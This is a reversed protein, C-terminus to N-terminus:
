TGAPPLAPTQNVPAPAPSPAPAPPNPAPAPKPAPAPTPTKKKFLSTVKSWLGSFFKSISAPFGASGVDTEIAARNRWVEYILAGAALAALATALWPVFWLSVRAVLASAEIGGAVAAIPISINHAEPLAFFLGIGIGVSVISLVIVVDLGRAVNALEPPTATMPKHAAPSPPPTHAVACGPLFECAIAAVLIVIPWLAWRLTKM